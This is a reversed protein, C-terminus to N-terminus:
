KGTRKKSSYLKHVDKTEPLLTPRAACTNMLDLLNRIAQPNRLFKLCAKLFTEIEEKSQSQAPAVPLVQKECPVEKSGKTNLGIHTIVKVSPDAERLKFRQVNQM